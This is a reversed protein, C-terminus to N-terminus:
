GEPNLYGSLTQARRATEDLMCSAHAITRMSGNGWRDYEFGCSQDRYAIWARQAHQLTTFLDAELTEGLSAYSTNLQSDWWDTERAMCEVMGITTYGGDETDMCVNSAAGICQSAQRVADPNEEARKPDSLEAICGTMLEADATTFSTTDQATAPLAILMSAIIALAKM